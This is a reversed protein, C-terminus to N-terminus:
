DHEHTPSTDDRAREKWSDKLDSLATAKQSEPDNLLGLERLWQRRDRSLKGQAAQVVSERYRREEIVRGGVEKQSTEMDVLPHGSDLEEPKEDAWRDLGIDKAHTVSIRFLETEIGLPPDGHLERYEDLYDSFVVDVFQQMREDLINQYYNNCDAYAGHTVANTNKQPAGGSDGVDGGRGGHFKCPGSDNSTGWGADLGCPEGRNNTGPCDEDSM